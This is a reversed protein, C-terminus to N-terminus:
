RLKAMSTALTRTPQGPHCDGSRCPVLCECPTTRDSEVSRPPNCHPCGLSVTVGQRALLATRAMEIWVGALMGATLGLAIWAATEHYTVFLLLWVAYPLVGLAQAVYLRNWRRQIDAASV